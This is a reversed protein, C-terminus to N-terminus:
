QKQKIDCPAGAGPTLTHLAVSAPQTLHIHILAIGVGTHVPGATQVTQPGVGAAAERPEVSGPTFCTSHCM